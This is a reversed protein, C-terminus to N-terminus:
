IALDQNHVLIERNEESIKYNKRQEELDDMLHKLEEGMELKVLHEQCTLKTKGRMRIM